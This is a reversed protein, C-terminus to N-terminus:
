KNIHETRVHVRRHHGPSSSTTTSLKTTNDTTLTKNCLIGSESNVEVCSKIQSSNDFHAALQVVLMVTHLIEYLLPHEIINPNVTHDDLGLTAENTTTVVEGPPLM